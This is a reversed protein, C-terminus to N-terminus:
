INWNPNEENDLDNMLQDFDKKLAFYMNRRTGTLQCTAENEPDWKDRSGKAKLTREMALAILTVEPQLFDLFYALDEDSLERIHDFYTM